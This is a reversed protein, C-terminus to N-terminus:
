LPGSLALPTSQYVYIAGGGLTGDFEKVLVFERQVKAMLGPEDAELQEPLTYVLWTASTSSRLADLAEPSEVEKWPAAYLRTYPFVALGAMAVRDDPARSAEVFARAAQYDQKPGYVRPISAASALVLAVMFADGVLAGRASAMRLVRGLLQGVVRTGHVVVLVVYGFAFFFLRPWLHHGLGITVAAILLTPGLLFQLLSPATRAFSWLGAGFVVAGALAVAGGTFNLQVGRLLESLAWGPSVWVDVTSAEHLASGLIQPLVLAHLQLTLLGALCFGLCLGSLAQQRRWDASGLMTLYVGFHGVVVVLMTLHTYVGLAVSLAYLIWWGPHEGHLARLLLWSALLTWFLLGSYGRANQSFWIHQYSVALLACAWLAERTTAVQRGLLYLAVISAVGFLAAPLRLSWVTDGFLQISTHALLSFLPHQNQNDYSTLIHAVPTRVYTVYAYIEDLWLGAQLQHLRLVTAAIVIGTLVALGRTSHCARTHGRHNVVAWVPLRGVVAVFGGLIVLTAKFLIVGSLLRAALPAPVSTQDVLAASPLMWGVSALM